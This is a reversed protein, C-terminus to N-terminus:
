LFYISKNERKKRKPIHLHLHLNRAWQNEEIISILPPDQYSSGGRTKHKSKTPCQRCKKHTPSTSTTLLFSNSTTKIRWIPKLQQFFCQLHQLTYLLCITVKDDAFNYYSIIALCTYTRDRSQAHGGYVMRTGCHASASKPPGLCPSITIRALGSSPRGLQTAYVYMCVYM